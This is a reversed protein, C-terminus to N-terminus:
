ALGSFRRFWRPTATGDDGRIDFQMARPMCREILPRLASDLASYPAVRDGRNVDGTQPSAGARFVAGGGALATVGVTDPLGAQVGAVGGVDALHRPGLATLWNVTRLGDLGSARRDSHGTFVDLGPHRMSLAWAAAEGEAQFYASTEIGFGAQASLVPLRDCVSLFMRELAQLRGEAESAPLSLHVYAPLGRGADKGPRAFVEFVAAGTEDHTSADKLMLAIYDRSTPGEAVWAGLMSLTKGTVKRHRSMTETAYWGFRSRGALDLWGDQVAVLGPAYRAPDDDLFFSMGFVFSTIRLGDLRAEFEPGAM